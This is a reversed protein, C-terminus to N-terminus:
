RPGKKRQENRRRVGDYLARLVVHPTRMLESPSINTALSLEAIEKAVGGFPVTLKGLQRREHSRRNREEM